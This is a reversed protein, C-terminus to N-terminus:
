KLICDLKATYRKSSTSIDTKMTMSCGGSQYFEVDIVSNDALFKNGMKGDRFKITLHKQSADYWKWTAAETLRSGDAETYDIFFNGNKDLTFSNITKQLQRVEDATLEAGQHQAEDVFAGLNGSEELMQMDIDGSLTLSLQKVTWTRAINSLRDSGTMENESKTATVPVQTTFTYTVGNVTISITISVTTQSTSRNALDQITGLERGGDMIVMQGDKFAVDYTAFVTEGDATVIEFVAKGSETITFSKLVAGNSSTVATSGLEYTAASAATEPTPIVIGDDSPKKFESDDDGCSVSCVAVCAAMAFYLFKKNM